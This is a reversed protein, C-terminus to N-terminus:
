PAGRRGQAGFTYSGLGLAEVLFAGTFFALGCALLDAYNEDSFAAFLFLIVAIALLIARLGFNM